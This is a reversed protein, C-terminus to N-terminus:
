QFEDRVRDFSTSVIVGAPAPTARAQRPTDDTVFRHLDDDGSTNGSGSGMANSDYRGATSPMKGNNGLTTGDMSDQKYEPASM